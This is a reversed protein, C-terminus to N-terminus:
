VKFNRRECIEKKAMLVDSGFGFVFVFVFVFWLGCGGRECAIGEDSKCRFASLTM